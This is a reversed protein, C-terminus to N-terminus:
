QQGMTLLGQNQNAESIKLANNITEKCAMVNFTWPIVSTLSLRDEEAWWDEEAYEIEKDCAVGWWDPTAKASFSLNLFIFWITESEQMFM